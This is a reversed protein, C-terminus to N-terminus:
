GQSDPRGAVGGQFPTLNQLTLGVCLTRRIAYSAEGPTNSVGRRLHNQSPPNGSRCHLIRGSGERIRESFFCWLREALRFPSPRKSKVIRTSSTKLNKILDCLSIKKSLGCLVHVHNEVGGVQVPDCELSRLTGGLYAHVELRLENSRLFSMRNKTSFVIHVLVLALSQSM